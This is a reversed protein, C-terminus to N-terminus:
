SLMVCQWRLPHMSCNSTPPMSLSAALEVAILELAIKADLPRQTGTYQDGEVRGTVLSLNLLM